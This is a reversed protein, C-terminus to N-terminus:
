QADSANHHAARAIEGVSGLDGSLWLEVAEPDFVDNGVVAAEAREAALRAERNRRDEEEMEEVSHLGRRILEAGRTELLIKQRELRAREAKAESFALFLRDERSKALELNSSVRSRDGILRRVGDLTLDVVDCPQGARLCESCKDSRSKDVICSLTKDLCRSCHVMEVGLTDILEATALLAFRDVSLEDLPKQKRGRRKRVAGSLNNQSRALSM